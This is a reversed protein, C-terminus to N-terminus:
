ALLEPKDCYCAADPRKKRLRPKDRDKEGGKQWLGFPQSKKSVILLL